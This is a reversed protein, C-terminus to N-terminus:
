AGDAAFGAHGREMLRREKEYAFGYQEFIV